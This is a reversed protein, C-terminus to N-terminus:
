MFEFGLMPKSFAVILVLILSYKIYLQIEWLFYNCVPYCCCFFWNLPVPSHGFAPLSQLSNLSETRSLLILHTKGTQQAHHGYSLSFAPRIPKLYYMTSNLAIAPFPPHFDQFLSLWLSAAWFDTNFKGWIRPYWKQIKCVHFLGSSLLM